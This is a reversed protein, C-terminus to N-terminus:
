ELETYSGKIWSTGVSFFLLKRKFQVKVRYFTQFRLELGLLGQSGWWCSCYLAGGSRVGARVLPMPTHREELIQYNLIQPCDYGVSM